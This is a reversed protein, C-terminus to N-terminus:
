LRYAAGASLVHTEANLEKALRTLAEDCTDHGSLYVKQPAAANITAITGDLDEHTTPIWPPKGTGVMMQIQIGAYVGRSATIPFHLGGALAYIPESSLRRVMAFILELTPHGCGTFIVLGKDKLRALVAQEETLGLPFFLSRALPGTTALGGDVLRPQSVLEVHFGEADSRDPVFCPKGAASGLSEPLRVQRTRAASSGGMHDRHLHSILLADVQDLTFGLKAANHELTPHDPGFGVDFLVTGRDTRLVYSVGPERLFGEEARWESLVTVELSDLEPLPLPEAQSLRKNNLEQALLINREFDLKEKLLFPLLVPSTVALVPWWLPSIRFAM